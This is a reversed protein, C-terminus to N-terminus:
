TFMDCVYINSSKHYLNGHFFVVPSVLVAKPPPEVFIDSRKTAQKVHTLLYHPSVTAASPHPPLPVINGRNNSTGM